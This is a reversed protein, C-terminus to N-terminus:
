KNDDESVIGTYWRRKRRFILPPPIKVGEEIAIHGKQIVYQYPPIVESKEVRTMM